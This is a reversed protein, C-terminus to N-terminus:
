PAGGQARKLVTRIKALMIQFDGDPGQANVWIVPRGEPTIKEESGEQFGLIDEAHELVEVLEKNIAEAVRARRLLQVTKSLEDRWGPIFEDLEETGFGGRCNKKELDVLAPQPGYKKCYMDYARLHMSWPIGASYGQVPAHKDVELELVREWLAEVVAILRDIDIISLQGDFLKRHAEIEELLDINTATM